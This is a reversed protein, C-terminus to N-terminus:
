HLRHSITQQNTGSRAFFLWLTALPNSWKISSLCGLAPQCNAGNGKCTLDYECLWLWVAVVLVYEWLYILPIFHMDIVAFLVQSSTLDM